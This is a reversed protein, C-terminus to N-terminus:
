NNIAAFYIKNKAVEVEQPVVEMVERDSEIDIRQLTKQITVFEAGPKTFVDHWEDTDFTFVDGPFYHSVVVPSDGHSWSVTSIAGAVVVYTEVQHRHRHFQGQWGLDHARTVIVAQTLMCLESGPRMRCRIEGRGVEKLTADINVGVLDERKIGAM